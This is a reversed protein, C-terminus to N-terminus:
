PSVESSTASSPASSTASVEPREPADHADPADPADPASELGQDGDDHEGGPPAAAQTVDAVAEAAAVSATTAAKPGADAAAKSVAKGPAKKAAIKSKKGAKRAAEVELRVRLEREIEARIGSAADGADVADLAKMVEIARSRVVRNMEEADRDSLKGTQHDFEIERISKLLTRKERELEDRQTSEAWWGERAVSPDAGAAGVRWLLYLTSVAAAWGLGLMVVSPTFYFHNHWAVFAWGALVAFLALGRWLWTPLAESGPAAGPVGATPSASTAESAPSDTSM